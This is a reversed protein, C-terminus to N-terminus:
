GARAAARMWCARRGGAWGPSSRGSSIRTCRGFWMEDEVAAMRRSEEAEVRRNWGSRFAKGLYVGSSESSRVEIGAPREV